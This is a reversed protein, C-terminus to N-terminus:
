LWRKRKFYILMGILVVLMVSLIIYYGNPWTLEPMNEFNMGYVGAIFTLPIFITAVTTLMKMTENMKHSLSSFYINTLSDLAKQTSDVEELASSCSHKLDRFYKKDEKKIFSTRDNLITTLAEKFPMLSKKILEASKKIDEISLLKAQTPDSLTTKALVSIDRKLSDLTEFYNDLIADMLQALLYDSGKKRVRGLNERIKNRIHGFHDGKQEQFSILYSTGLLFSLQEVVPQGENILISKVSFFLYNDYEEVKPRQTTDVIQRLTFRDIGISQGLTEFLDVNHLGHFNLWLVNSSNNHKDFETFDQLQEKEILLEANFVFLQSLVEEVKQEGIFTIEAKGKAESRVKSYFNFNFNTLSRLGHLLLKDTKM